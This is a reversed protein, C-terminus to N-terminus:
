ENLFTTGPVNGYPFYRAYQPYSAEYRSHFVGNMENAQQFVSNPDYQNMKTNPEIATRKWISSDNWKITDKDIEGVFGDNSNSLVIAGDLRIAGRYQRRDAYFQGSPTYVMITCQYPFDNNPVAFPSWLVIQYVANQAVNIWYSDKVLNMVQTAIQLGFQNKNSM